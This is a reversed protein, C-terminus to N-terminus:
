TQSSTIFASTAGGDVPINQATVYAARDSLLYAVAEGIEEPRAYRRMPIRGLRHSEDARDLRQGIAENMASSTVGPSVSNVRVGIGAYAVGLERTMAIVGGKAATYAIQSPCSGLMGVISANNVIAGGGAELMAPIGFRCCLYVGTLNVALTRDWADEETKTIAGDGPHMIGANNFMGDLGGFRSVSAEVMAATSRADSVDVEVPLVADSPLTDAASRLRAADADAMTVRAGERLLVKVTALGIGAAGGTVIIRKGILM